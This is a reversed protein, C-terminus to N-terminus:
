VRGITYGLTLSLSKDATKAIPPTFEMKGSYGWRICKIGGSLNGEQTGLTFTVRRQGPVTGALISVNFVAATGSADLGVGNFSGNSAAYAGSTLSAAALLYDAVPNPSPQPRRSIYSHNVGGLVINGTLDEDVGQLTLKYTVVLQDAAGVTIPRIVGNGDKILARSHVGGAAIGSDMSFGVETINAQVAGVAFVFTMTASCKWTNGTVSIGTETYRSSVVEGGTASAVLNGLATQTEIPEATGTGVRVVKTRAPITNSFGIATQNQIFSFFSNLLMNDVGEVSEKLEGKNGFVQFGYEGKAGVSIM